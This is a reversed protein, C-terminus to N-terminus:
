SIRKTMFVSNPDEVYDGFPKCYGFGFREYLIRASAFETMSGTELYLSVYGRRKAVRIIHEVILSGIGRGRRSEATRMSKIEGSHSDMEKLAGCGVLEDGDWVSWFTIDPGRLSDIDMAHVSEPPTIAYMHNLHAGLFGAIEAGTLDDELIQM